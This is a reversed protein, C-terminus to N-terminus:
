KKVLPLRFKFSSGEGEKSTVSIKGDHNRIIEASIYLGLGIGPYTSMSQGGVRYFRDFIKPLSEEPIGIGHDTVSVEIHDGDVLSQIEILTNDPSYKVANTVLNAIVQGIREKDARVSSPENLALTIIRKGAIQRIEEVREQLFDNLSFEEYEYILRGEEIRTTDLLDSILKTLRDVQKSLKAVLAANKVDGTATLSENVLEAYSKISTVPTKLEHSAIGIFEERAKLLEKLQQESKRLAEDMRARQMITWTREATEKIIYMESATWRRPTTSHVNVGAVYIGNSFLPVAVFSRLGSAQYAPLEEPTLMASAKVDEVIVTNGQVLEEYVKQSFVDKPYSGIVSAAGPQHYGMSIVHLYNDGDAEIEHFFARYANLHTGLIETATKQVQRPDTLSRLADSLQLLYNQQAEHWKRDSINNFLVAVQNSGAIGFPFAFVEYWVGGALHAAENEFHLPQNKRVVEGYVQFWHEEQAPQMEKVTKGTADKLGTQKEFVTNVKLFLYDYPKDKKDFLVEIICFGQGMKDFISFYQETTMNDIEKGILEDPLFNRTADSAIAHNDMLKVTKPNSAHNNTQFLLDFDRVTILLTVL